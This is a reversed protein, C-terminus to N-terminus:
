DTYIRLVEIEEFPKLMNKLVELAMPEDDVLITKMRKM